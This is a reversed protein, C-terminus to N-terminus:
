ADDAVRAPVLHQEEEVTTRSGPPFGEGVDAVSLEGDVSILLHPDPVPHGFSDYSEVPELMASVRPARGVDADLLM